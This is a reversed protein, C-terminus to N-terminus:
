SKNEPQKTNNKTASVAAVKRVVQDSVASFVTKAIGVSAGSKSASDAIAQTMFDKALNSMPSKKEGDFSVAQMQGLLQKIFISEFGEAAGQLKQLEAKAEKPLKDLDIQKNTGDPSDTLLAQYVAELKARQETGPKGLMGALRNELPKRFDPRLQLRISDTNALASNLRIPGTM